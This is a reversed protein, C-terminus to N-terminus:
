RLIKGALYLGNGGVMLTLLYDPVDPMMPRGGADLALDANLAEIAYMAIVFPFVVMSVVREQAIGRAAKRDKLFGTVGIDGRLMRVVILLALLGFWTLLGIALLRAPAAM